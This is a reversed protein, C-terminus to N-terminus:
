YESNTLDVWFVDARPLQSSLFQLETMLGLIDARGYCLHTDSFPAASKVLHGALKASTLPLSTSAAKSNGGM